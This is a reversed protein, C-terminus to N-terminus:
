VFYFRTTGGVKPVGLRNALKIGNLDAKSSEAIPDYLRQSLVYNEEWRLRKEIIDQHNRFENTAYMIARQNMKPVAELREDIARELYRIIGERDIQVRQKNYERSLVEAIKNQVFRINDEDFYGLPIVANPAITHITFPAGSM